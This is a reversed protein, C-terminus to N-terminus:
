KLIEKKPTFKLVYLLYAITIATSIGLIIFDTAQKSGVAAILKEASAFGSLSNNLAHFLICFVLSETRVFIIVLLFGVAVAFIIQIINKMLDYGNLLNVIHGIGFTVSSVIIASKVNTKAMGKFLFGRFIIEELFGVFIMMLVRLALEVPSFQPAFGFIIGGSLAIMLLPIYFLMKAASIQPKCLGVHETLKNKIIFVLLVTSLTMNFMVEALFQIDIQASIRQMVSSGVVYIVILVIAFISEDKEFLKKM